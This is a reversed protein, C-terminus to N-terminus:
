DTPKPGSDETAQNAPAEGGVGGGGSRADPQNQDNKTIDNATEVTEAVISDNKATPELATEEPQDSDVVPEQGSNTTVEGASETVNEVAALWTQSARDQHKFRLKKPATAFRRVFNLKARRVKGSKVREIKAVWPSPLVFMREVGVGSAIKRVTFRGVGARNLRSEIVLGEFIQIREKAGERIKYHVRATDGPKLDIVTPLPTKTITMKTAM